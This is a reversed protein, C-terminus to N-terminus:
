GALAVAEQLSLSRGAHWAAEIASGDREGALGLRDTVDELAPSRSPPAPLDMQQRLSATAGLLRAAKDSDGGNLAHEALGELEEIMGRVDGLQQRLRLAERQGKEALAAHGRASDLLARSRLIAATAALALDPNATEDEQLWRAAGELDGGVVAANALGSLALAANSPEEIERALSLANTFRQSAGLQDGSRHLAEGLGLLALLTGQRYGLQGSRAYAEELQVAAEGFRGQSSSLAGLRFLSWTLGWLDGEERRIALSTEYCSRAEATKGQVALANGLNTLALSVLWPDGAQRGAAVAM